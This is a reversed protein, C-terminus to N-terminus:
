LLSPSPRVIATGQGRLWPDVQPNARVIGEYGVTFRRAIDTLTDDKSATVVQVVGVIAQGPDLEFRENAVPPPLAPAAPPAPPAPPAPHRLPGFLSCGAILLCTLAATVRATAAAMM